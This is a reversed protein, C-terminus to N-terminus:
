GKCDDSLLFGREIPVERVAWRSKLTQVVREAFARAAPGNKKDGDPGGGYGFGIGIQLRNSTVSGATLGMYDDRSIWITTAPKSWQLASGQEKLRDSLQEKENSSDIFNMGESRALKEM